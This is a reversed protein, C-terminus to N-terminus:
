CALRTLLSSILYIMTKQPAIVVHESDRIVKGSVSMTPSTNKIRIFPKEWYLLFDSGVSSKVEKRQQKNKWKM